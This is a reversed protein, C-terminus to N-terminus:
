HGSNSDKMKLEAFFDDIQDLLHGLNTAHITQGGWTNGNLFSIEAYCATRSVHIDVSHTNAELFPDKLDFFRVDGKINIEGAM